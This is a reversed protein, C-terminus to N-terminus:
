IKLKGPIIVEHNSNEKGNKVSIGNELFTNVNKDSDSFGSPRRENNEDESNMWCNGPM